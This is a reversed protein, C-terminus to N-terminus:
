RKNIHVRVGLAQFAETFWGQILDAHVPEVLLSDHITAVFITPQHHIVLTLPFHLMFWIKHTRGFVPLPSIWPRPLSFLPEM